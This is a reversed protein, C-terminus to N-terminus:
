IQNPLVQSLKPGPMFQNTQQYQPQFQEQGHPHPIAISHPQVPAIMMSQQGIVDHMNVPPPKEVVPPKHPEIKPFEAM